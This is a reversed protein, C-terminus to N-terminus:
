TVQVNADGSSVLKAMVVFRQNESAGLARTCTSLTIIRDSSSVNVDYHHLSLSRGKDIISQLASGTRTTYLYFDLDTTYFAAFVQWVMDQSTSSYYFYPVRQAFWLHAFSPLQAFMVDSSRGVSPNGSVNTWNHGFIVTNTSADNIDTDVWLSGNYSYNRNIDLNMYTTLAAGQMVPYDINTNDVTLWAVM